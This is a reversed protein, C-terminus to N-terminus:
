RQLAPERGLIALDPAHPQDQQALHTVALVAEGGDVHIEVALRLAIEQRDRHPPAVLVQAGPSRFEGVGQRLDPAPRADARQDVAGM